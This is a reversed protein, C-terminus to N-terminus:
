RAWRTFKRPSEELLRYVGIAKEADSWALNVADEVPQAADHPMKAVVAANMADLDKALTKIESQCRAMYVATMEEVLSPETQACAQSWTALALAILWRGAGRM